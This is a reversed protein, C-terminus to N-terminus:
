YEIEIICKNNINFESLIAIYLRLENFLHLINNNGTQYLVAIQPIHEEAWNLFSSKTNDINPSFKYLRHDPNVNLIDYLYDLHEKVKNEDKIEVKIIDENLKINGLCKELSRKKVTGWYGSGLTYYYTSNYELTKNM